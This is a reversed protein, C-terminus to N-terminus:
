DGCVCVFIKVELKAGVEEEEEVMRMMQSSLYATWRPKM